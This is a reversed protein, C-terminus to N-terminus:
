EVGLIEKVSKKPKVEPQKEKNEEAKKAKKRFFAEWLMRSDALKDEEADGAPGFDTISGYKILAIHVCAERAALRVLHNEDTLLKFLPEETKMALGYYWGAAVRHRFDKSECAIEALEPDNERLLTEAMPRCHKKIKIVDPHLGAEGTEDIDKTM